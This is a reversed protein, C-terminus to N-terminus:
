ENRPDGKLYVGFVTKFADSTRKGPYGDARLNIGPFANLLTQLREAHVSKASNSYQLPPEAKLLAV